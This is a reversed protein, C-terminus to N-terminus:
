SAGVKSTSITITVQAICPRHLVQALFLVGWFLSQRMYVYTYTNICVLAYM